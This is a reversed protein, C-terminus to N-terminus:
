GKRPKQVVSPKPAPRPPPQRTAVPRVAAKVALATREWADPHLEIKDLDPSLPKDKMPQIYAPRAAFAAIEQDFWLDFKTPRKKM